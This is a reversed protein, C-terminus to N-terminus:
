CIQRARCCQAGYRRQQLYCLPMAAYYAKVHQVKRRKRQRKEAREGPAPMPLPRTDYHCIADRADAAPAAPLRRKGVFYHCHFDFTSTAIIMYTVFYAAFAYYDVYYYCHREYCTAAHLM